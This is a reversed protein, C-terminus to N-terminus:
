FASFLGRFIKLGIIVGIGGVVVFEALTFDWVDYLHQYFGESPQLWEPLIDFISFTFEFFEWFPRRMVYDGINNLWEILLEGTRLLNWM